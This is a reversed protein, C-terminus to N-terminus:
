IISRSRLLGDFGRPKHALPKQGFNATLAVGPAPGDLALIPTAEAVPGRLERVQTGNLSFALRVPYDGQDLVVGIIDGAQLPESLSMSHLAWSAGDAGDESLSDGLAHAPAVVGVSIAGGPGIHGITVEWYGKDQLVCQDARIQGTGSVHLGDIHLSGSRDSRKESLAVADDIVDDQASALGDDGVSGCCGCCSFLTALMRPRQVDALRRHNCFSLIIITM